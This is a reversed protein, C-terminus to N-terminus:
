DFDQEHDLIFDAREMREEETLQLAIWAQAQEESIHNRTMLRALQKQQSVHILVSHDVLEHFHSEFLIACEMILTEEPPLSLLQDLTIQRDAQSSSLRKTSSEMNPADKSWERKLEAWAEAVLPHVIANVQATQQAGRCIFASMVEKNLEGTVSYLNQGILETLRDKATRNTRIIQKAEHDCYFVKFGAEELLHCIYSKGSGIGGTSRFLM